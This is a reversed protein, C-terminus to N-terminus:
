PTKRVIEMVAMVSGDPTKCAKIELEPKVGGVLAQWDEWEREKANFAQMMTLDRVRLRAEDEASMSEPPPLVTDMLLIRAGPKMAAALHSLIKQAADTPWDHLIMRLLYVDATTNPEPTFFDHPQFTIRTQLNAPLSKSSTGSLTAEQDQVIFSLQPFEEALAISAHGTSVGV